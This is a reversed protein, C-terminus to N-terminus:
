YKVINYVVLFQLMAYVQTNTWWLEILINSRIYSVRSNLICRTKSQTKLFFNSLHVNRSNLACRLKEVPIMHLINMKYEFYYLILTMGLEM